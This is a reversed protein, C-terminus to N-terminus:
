FLAFRSCFSVFIKKFSGNPRYEQRKIHRSVSKKLTHGILRPAANRFITSPAQSSFSVHGTGLTVKGVPSRVLGSDPGLYGGYEDGLFCIEEVRWHVRLAAM